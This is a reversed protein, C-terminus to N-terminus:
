WRQHSFIFRTRKVWYFYFHLIFMRKWGLIRFNKGLQKYDSIAKLAAREAARIGIYGLFANFRM